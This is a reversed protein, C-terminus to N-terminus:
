AWADGRSARPRQKGGGAGRRRRRVVEVFGVSGIVVAALAIVAASPLGGPSPKWYLTGALRARTSGVQIPVRWDFIKAQKSKDKVQPPLKKSMWHIRHDHWEFRGSRNLTDWRPAAKENAQPPVSVQGFRDENLYYSPSAKNVQVAGDALVRAYPEGDYGRVLVDRGTGNVLLLRDDYNLIEVHLGSIPPTTGRLTSRFNPNGAHGLAPAPLAAVALVGTLMLTAAIRNATGWRSWPTAVDNTM